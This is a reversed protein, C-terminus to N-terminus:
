GCIRQQVLTTVMDEKSTKLRKANGGCLARLEGISKRSLLYERCAKASWSQAGDARSPQPNAGAASVLQRLANIGPTPHQKRPAGQLLAILDVRSQGVPDHGRQRAQKRLDPVTARPQCVGSLLPMLKGLAGLLATHEPISAMDVKPSVGYLALGKLLRRMESATGRRPPPASPKLPTLKFGLIAAAFEIMAVAHCKGKAPYGRGLLEHHFKKIQGKKYDSAISLIGIFELLPLMGYKEMCQRTECLHVLISQWTVEATTLLAELSRWLAVFDCHCRIRFLWFITRKGFQRQGKSMDRHLDETYDAVDRELLAPLLVAVSRALSMTSYSRALVNKLVGKLRRRALAVGNQVARKMSLVDIDTLTYSRCLLRDIVVSWSEAVEDFMRRAGSSQELAYLPHMGSLGALLGERHQVFTVKQKARLLNKRAAAGLQKWFTKTLVPKCVAQLVRPAILLGGFLLVGDKGRVLLLFLTVRALALHLSVYTM